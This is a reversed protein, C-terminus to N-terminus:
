LERSWPHSFLYIQPFLLPHLSSVSSLVPSVISSNDTAVHGHFFLLLLLFFLPILSSSPLSPSFPPQLTPLSPFLFLYPFILGVAFFSTYPSSSSCSPHLPLLSLLPYIALYWHIFSIILIFSSPSSLSSQHLLSTVAFLHVLSLFLLHSQHSFPRSHLLNPLPLGRFISFVFFVSLSPM